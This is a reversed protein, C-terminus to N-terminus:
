KPAKRSEWIQWILMAIFVPVILWFGAAAAKNPEGGVWFNWLVVPLTQNEGGQLLLASSLERICHAVVWIWVALAAPMTLPLVVKRMARGWSAGSTRAAEELEKHLQMMVSNTGRTGFPLYVTIYAIMIIWISGYISIFSINLYVYILAVGIMTGPIAVPLFSLFDVVKGSKGGKRVVIWSILVSFLAVVTSAGVGILLSNGLARLTLTDTFFAGHNNWTILNLAKLSPPTLWPMLSTWFLIALPIITALLFYVFVLLLVPTKWRGLKLQRPRFNKGTVTVFRNANRTLRYYFFAMVLLVLLFFIAITSIINYASMGGAANTALYVIRSSLVFINVPMGLTGPVDFVLFGAMLIFIAAALLAPSLLPLFVKVFIKFRGAGSTMAAEELSPDMNRFAPCLIMFTSPVLSLAEVFIMGGLSYINISFDELGPIQQILTNFFGIRPSLLLIWGIALLFPPIAMPLTLCIRLARKGPLDTREVVWALIIGMTMAGVMSGVAFKITTWVMGWFEVDWYVTLYNKLTWGPDFPLGSPTLSSVFLVALPALVLYALILLVVLVPMSIFHGKRPLVASLM